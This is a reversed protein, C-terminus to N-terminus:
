GLSPRLTNKLPSSQLGAEYALLAQATKQAIVEITDGNEIKVRVPAQEYFEKRAARHEASFNKLAERVPLGAAEAKQGRDFYNGRTTQGSIKTAEYDKLLNDVVHDEPAELYVPVFGNALLADRTKPRMFAAGGLDPVADAMVGNEFMYIIANQEFDRFNQDGYTNIMAATSPLLSIDFEKNYQVTFDRLHAQVVPHSLDERYQDFLKDTSIVTLGDRLAFYNAVSTKGSGALGVFVFKMM